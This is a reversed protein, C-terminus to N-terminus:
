GREKRRRRVAQVVMAIGALLSSVVILGVFGAMFDGSTPAERRPAPDATPSATPAAGAHIQSEVVQAGEDVEASTGLPSLDVDALAADAKQFPSAPMAFPQPAADPDRSMDWLPVLQGDQQGIVFTVVQEKAGPELYVGFGGGAAGADDLAGDNQEAPPVFAQGRWGGDFQILYAGPPVLLRCAGDADTVCSDFPEHPPGTRLIQLPVGPLAQGQGDRVVIVLPQNPPQLDAAVAPQGFINMLLLLVTALAQAHTM